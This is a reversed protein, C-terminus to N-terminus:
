FLYSCLHVTSLSDFNTVFLEASTITLKPLLLFDFMNRIQIKLCFYHINKILLDGIFHSEQQVVAALFWQYLDNNWPNVTVLCQEICVPNVTVFYQEICVPNVTVLYQEICVLNVTVLYQEICVPNVTVLYQEICVPYCNCSVTRYM